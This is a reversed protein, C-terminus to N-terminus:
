RRTERLVALRTRYEAASMEGRAFGDALTSEGRRGQRRRRMLLLVLGAWFLLPVLLFWPGPWGASRCCAAGGELTAAHLVLSTDM